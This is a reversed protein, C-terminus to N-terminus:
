GGMYSSVATVLLHNLSVGETSARLACREHLSQPLRLVLKGSFTQSGFPEPVHQGTEIVAELWDRMAGEIGAAAEEPTDGGSFCGQFELVSASYSGEPDRVFVRHYPRAAIEEIHDKSM